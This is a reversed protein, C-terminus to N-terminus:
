SSLFKKTFRSIFPEPPKPTEQRLLGQHLWGTLKEQKYHLLKESLYSSPYKKHYEAKTEIVDPEIKMTELPCWQCASINYAQETGCLSCERSSYKSSTDKWIHPCPHLTLIKLLKM